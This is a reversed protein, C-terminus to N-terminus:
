RARGILIRVVTVALVVAQLIGLGVAIFMIIPKGTEEKDDKFNFFDRITLSGSEANQGLSLTSAQVVGRGGASQGSRYKPGGGATRVSEHSSNDFDVKTEAIAPTFKEAEVFFIKRQSKAPFDARNQRPIPDTFDFNVALPASAARAGQQQGSGDIGRSRGIVVVGSEKPMFGRLDEEYGNAAGGMLSDGLLVANGDTAVAEGFTYAYYGPIGEVADALLFIYIDDDDTSTDDEEAARGDATKGEASLEGEAPTGKGAAAPKGKDADKFYSQLYSGFINHGAAAENQGTTPKAAQYRGGSPAQDCRTGALCGDDQGIVVIKGALSPSPSWAILLATSFLFLSFLIRCGSNKEKTATSSNLQM